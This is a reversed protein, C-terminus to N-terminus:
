DREPEEEDPWLDRRAVRSEAEPDSRAIWAGIVALVLIAVLLAAIDGPIGAILFSRVPWAIGEGRPGTESTSAPETPHNPTM